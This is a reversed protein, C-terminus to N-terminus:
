EVRGNTFRVVYQRTAVPSDDEWSDFGHPLPYVCRTHDFMGM